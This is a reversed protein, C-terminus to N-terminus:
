PVSGPISTYVSGARCRAGFPLHDLDHYARRAFRKVLACPLLAAPLALALDCM